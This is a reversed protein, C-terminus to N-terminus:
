SVRNFCNISHRVGKDMIMLASRTVGFKWSYEKICKVVLLFLNIEDM